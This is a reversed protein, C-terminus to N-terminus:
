GVSYKICVPTFGLEASTFGGHSEAYEGYQIDDYPLIGKDSIDNVVFEFIPKYLANEEEGEAFRIKACNNLSFGHCEEIGCGVAAIMKGGRFVGYELVNSDNYHAETLLHKIYGDTKGNAWRLIDDKDAFTLERVTIDPPLATKIKEGLYIAQPRSNLPLAMGHERLVCDVTEFPIDTYFTKLNEFRKLWSALLSIDDTVAELEATGRLDDCVTIFGNQFDGSPAVVWLGMAKILTCLCGYKHANKELLHEIVEDADALAFDPNKHLFRYVCSSDALDAFRLAKDKNKKRYETPTIGYFKKFAKIFGEHSDYGVNLAIDLVGADTTRLLLSAHKIRNYNIYSMVTFGTHSLFLKNFYDMSFGAYAAIKQVNINTDAFNEKSFLVAKQILENNEM